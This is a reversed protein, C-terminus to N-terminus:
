RPLSCAHAGKGAQFAPRREIQRTLAKTRKSASFLRRFDLTESRLTQKQKQNFDSVPEENLLM